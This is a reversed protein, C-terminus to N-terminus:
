GLGVSRLAEIEDVVRSYEESYVGSMRVVNMLEQQLEALRTDIDETSGTCIGTEEILFAEKNTILKNMARLFAKELDKERISKM